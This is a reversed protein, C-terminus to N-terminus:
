WKVKYHRIESERKITSVTAKPYFKKAFGEYLGRDFSDPYPNNTEVILYNNGKEIVKYYSQADGTHNM